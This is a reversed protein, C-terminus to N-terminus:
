TIEQFFVRGAKPIIGGEQKKKQETVGKDFMNRLLSSDLPAILSAAIPAM